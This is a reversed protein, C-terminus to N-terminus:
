PTTPSQFEIGVFQMLREPSITSGATPETWDGKSNKAKADIFFLIRQIAQKSLLEGTKIKTPSFDITYTHFTYKGNEDEGSQETHTLKVENPTNGDSNQIVTNESGYGLAIGLNSFESYFKVRVVLVTYEPNYSAVNITVPNWGQRKNYKLMGMGGEAVGSKTIGAAGLSWTSTVRPAGGEAPKEFVVNRVSLTGSNVAGSDIFFYISKPTLNKVFSGPVTKNDTFAALEELTSFDFELSEWNESVSMNFSSLYNYDINEPSTKTAYKIAITLTKVNTGKVDLKITTYEPKYNAIDAEIRPFLEKSVSYNVQADLGDVGESRSTTINCSTYGESQKWATIFPASYTKNLDPDNENVTALATVTFKGSFEDIVQKPNSDLMLMFGCISKQTVKEGVVVAYNKNLLVGDDLKCIILNEGEIVSNNYVTVAPCSDQYQEYYVALVTIREVSECNAKIKLFPNGDYNTVPIYVYSYPALRETSKYSVSFLNQGETGGEIAYCANSATPTGFATPTEKNTTPPTAPKDPLSVAPSNVAIKEEEEIELKDTWKIRGECAVLPLAFALSMLITATKKAIATIKKTINPNKM